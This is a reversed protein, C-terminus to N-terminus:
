PFVELLEGCYVKQYPVQHEQLVHLAQQLRHSQIRLSYGCGQQALHRPTRHLGCHVGARRLLQEARQAPTVSRFTIICKEM